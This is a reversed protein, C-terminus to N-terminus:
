QTPNMKTSTSSLILLRVLKIKALIISLSSLSARIIPLSKYSGADFEHNVNELNYFGRLM